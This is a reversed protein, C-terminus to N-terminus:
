EPTEELDEIAIINKFLKWGPANKYNDIFSFPVKLDIKSLKWDNDYTGFLVDTQLYPPRPNLSTISKLNKCGNLAYEGIYSVNKPFIIETLKECGSFAGSGIRTISEPLNLKYLNECRCFADDGITEISDPLSVENICCCGFFSSKGIHKITKPFSTRGCGIVITNTNTEIIANCNDRSDYCQNDKHVTISQVGIGYLSRFVNLGIKNVSEPIVIAKLNSNSDFALDEIIKLSKGFIVSQLKCSAFALKGVHVISDPLKIKKLGCDLFASQEIKTISNPVEISHMSRQGHFAACGITRITPHIKTKKCGVIIRNNKTEVIANCNERSDYTKNGQEVEIKDLGMCYSFAGESIEAISKPIRISKLFTCYYFADEEIKTITNPIIVNTLYLPYGDGDSGYFSRKGIEKVTYQKSNFKVVPPIIVTKDSEGDDIFRGENNKDYECFQIKVSDDDIIKFVMTYDDIFFAMFENEGLLYTHHKSEYDKASTSYCIPYLEIKESLMKGDYVLEVYEHVISDEPDLALISYLPSLARGMEKRGFLNYDKQQYAMAKLLNAEKSNPKSQVANNFCELASSYDGKSFYDKGKAINKNYDMM